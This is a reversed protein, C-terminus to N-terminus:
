RLFLFINQFTNPNICFHDKIIDCVKYAEDYADIYVPIVNIEEYLAKNSIHNIKVYIPINDINLIKQIQKLYDISVKESFFIGNINNKLLIQLNKIDYINYIQVKLNEHNNKFLNINNINKEICLANINIQELFSILISTVENLGIVLFTSEQKNISKVLFQKQYFMYFIQFIIPTIILSLVTIITIYDIITSQINMSIFFKNVFVFVMEGVSLLMLSSIMSQTHNLLFRNGIYLSIFKGFSVLFFLILSICINNLFFKLPFFMGVTIFFICLLMEKVPIIQSEIFNAYETEGLLFGALVAGLELSLHFFETLLSLGIILLISIFLIFELSSFRKFLENVVKRGLLSIIIFILISRILTSMINTSSSHVLLIISLIDQLLMLTFVIKGVKTYLKNTIKLFHFVIPTSSVAFLMSILLYKPSYITSILFVSSIAGISLIISLSSTVLYHKLSLIKKYNLHLGIEFMVFLIGLASLTQSLYSSSVLNLVSPGLIIGMIIYIGLGTHYKSYLFYGFLGGLCIYFLELIGLVSNM